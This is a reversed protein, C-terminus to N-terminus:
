LVVKREIFACERLVRVLEVVGSVEEVCRVAQLTEPMDDGCTFNYTLDTRTLTTSISGSAGISLTITGNTDTRYLEIDGHGTLMDLVQEHPHGYDNGLGCQIVAIEPDVANLFASTTANSSGHHGVKLVDINKYNGTYNTLYENIAEEEADGNFMITKGAYELVFIPSYNNPDEYKIQERVAVPTLFDFTYTRREEGLIMTNTFDSDKNFLEVTCGENYAAVMFEAYAESTSVYADEDDIVPNFEAPLSSAMTHSTYNNPRFIFNVKYNELVWDMNGVHDRDQHTLLLYHFTDINNATTYDEIVGQDSNFDGSDIIMNKGDPLEIIICDAQGVDLFAVKLNGFETVETEYGGATSLVIDDDDDAPRFKAILLDIWGMYYAVVCFFVLLLLIVLIAKWHNKVVKNLERKQRKTLRRAM